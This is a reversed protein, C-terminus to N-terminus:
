TNLNGLDQLIPNWIINIKKYTLIKILNMISLIKIKNPLSDVQEEKYM